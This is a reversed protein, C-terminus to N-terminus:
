NQGGRGTLATFASDSRSAGTSRAVSIWDALDVASEFVVASIGTDRARRLIEREEDPRLHTGGSSDLVANVIRLLLQEAESRSDPEENGSRGAGSPGATSAGPDVTLARRGVAITNALDLVVEWDDPAQMAGPHGFLEIEEHANLPWQGDIGLALNVMQVLEDNQTLDREPHGQASAGARSAGTGSNSPEPVSAFRALVVNEAMTQAFDWDHATQSLLPHGVMTQVEEVSLPDHGLVLLATDVMQMLEEHAAAPAQEFRAQDEVDFEFIDRLMEQLNDASQERLPDGVSRERSGRPSDHAVSASRSSGAAGRATGSPTPLRLHDQGIGGMVRDPTAGGFIDEQLALSGDPARRINVSIMQVPEGSSDAPIRSPGATPQQEPGRMVVFPGSRERVVRPSSSPLEGTRNRGHNTQWEDHADSIRQATADDIKRSPYKEAFFYAAGSISSTSNRQVIEVGGDRFAQIVDPHITRYGVRRFHGSWDAFARVQAPLRRRAHSNLFSPIRGRNQPDGFWARIEHALRSGEDAAEAEAEPASIRGTPLALNWPNSSSSQDPTPPPPSGFLSDNEDNRGSRNAGYQHNPAPDILAQVTSSTSSSSHRPLALVGGAPGVFLARAEVPATQPLDETIFRHQAATMDIWVVRPPSQPDKPHLSYAAWSHGMGSLHRNLIFAASGPANGLTEIVSRWSDVKQWGPGAAILSEQHHVGLVADDVTTSPRIGHPYLQKRLEHLLTLCEQVTMDHPSQTAHADANATSREKHTIQAVHRVATEVETISLPHRQTGVTGRRFQDGNSGPVTNSITRRAVQGETDTPPRLREDSLGTLSNEAGRFVSARGVGADAVVTSDPVENGTDKGASVAEATVAPGKEAESATPLPHDPAAVSRTDAGSVPIGSGPEADLLPRSAAGHTEPTNADLTVRIHDRLDTLHTAAQQWDRRAAAADAPALLRRQEAPTIGAEAALQRLHQMAQFAAAPRELVLRTRDADHRTLEEPAQWRHLSEELRARQGAELPPRGAGSETALRPAPTLPAPRGNGAPTAGPAAHGVTLREPIDLRVQGSRPFQTGPGPSWSPAPTGNGTAPLASAQLLTSEGPGPVARYPRAPVSGDQRAGDGFPFGGTSSDAPGHGPTRNIQTLDLDTLSPKHHPLDFGLKGKIWHGLKAAGIHGIESGLSAGAGGVTTMWTTTFQGTESLNFFAEAGNMAAAQLAAVPFARVLKMLLPSPLAGALGHSLASHLGDLGAPMWSLASDLERGLTRPGHGAHAMFTDAWRLGAEGAQHLGLREGFARTFQDGVATRFEQRTKQWVVENQLRIAMPVSLRAMEHGFWDGRLLERSLPDNHLGGLAGKGFVGTEAGLLAKEGGSVAAKGGARAPATGPGHVSKEIIQEINKISKPGLFPLKGVAKGIPGVVFPVLTSLAGQIAGFKLSQDRYEDAHATHKGQAALIWRTLGDLSAALVVNMAMISASQIAVRAMFLKLESIFVDRFFLELIMKEFQAEIPDFFELLLVIALEAFFLAVQEVIMMNTYDLQYALENGADALQLATDKLGQIYDAGDGSAFRSIAQVYADIAEGKAGSVTAGAVDAVAGQLGTLFQSVALHPVVVEAYIRESSGEPVSMGTLMLM